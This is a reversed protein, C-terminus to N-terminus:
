GADRRLPACPDGYFCYAAWSDDFKDDPGSYSADRLEALIDALARDPEAAARSYLETAVTPANLMSVPWLPAIVARAGLETFAQPFGAGGPAITMRGRGADCANLFVIPHHAACLAKFGESDRVDGSSYPEDRDLYLTEADAAAQGHCVFHVLSAGNEALHQEFYAKSAEELRRGNFHRVLVELEADPKLQRDEAQYEAAILLSDRVPLLEPPPRRDGRLRRGIAFEVGLPRPREEPTGDDKERAPLMLEWPLLPDDTAVYLSARGEAQRDRHDDILAWLADQFVQPAAKWFERGAKRLESRRDGPRLLRNVFRDLKDTIFAASGARSSWDAPQTWTEYGALGPACISWQQREDNTPSVISVSLDPTGVGTTVSVAGSAAAAPQARGEPWSWTRRVRGCERGEWLLTVDVAAPGPEDVDVVEVTFRVPESDAREREVRLLEFYSGAVRFQPSARLLVGLDVADVGPPPEIVVDESEEEDRAPAMDTWVSVDFREGAEARLADPADLHPTRRIIGGDAPEAGGDGDASPAPEAGFSEFAESSPAWVADVRGAAIVVARGEPQQEPAVATAVAAELDLEDALMAAVEDTGEPITELQTRLMWFRQLEQLEDYDIVYYADPERLVLAVPASLDLDAALLREALETRGGRLVAVREAPFRTLM